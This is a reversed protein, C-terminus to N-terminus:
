VICPSKFMFNLSIKWKWLTLCSLGTSLTSAFRWTIKLESCFTFHALFQVSMCLFGGYNVPLKRVCWPRTSKHEYNRHRREKARWVKDSPPKHLAGDCDQTQVFSCVCRWNEAPIVNKRILASGGDETHFYNLDQLHLSGTGGFRNHINVARCTASRRIASMWCQSM